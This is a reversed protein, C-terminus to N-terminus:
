TRWQKVLKLWEADSEITVIRAAAPDVSAGAPAALDGQAAIRKQEALTPTQWVPVGPLGISQLNGQRDTTWEVCSTLSLLSLLSGVAVVGVLRLFVISRLSWM